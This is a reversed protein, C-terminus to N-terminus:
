EVPGGAPVVPGGASGGVSVVPRLGRAAVWGGGMIVLGGLWLALRVGPLHVTLGGVSLRRSRGLWSRSLGDLVTTGIPAVVLALFLCLRTSAYLTAFVRGRLEDGVESQLISFGLVYAAGTCVGFGVIILSSQSLESVASAAILFVGGALASWVFTRRHPLWRQVLGVGVIGLAVGVGYATLLVGFGSTGAHLVDHSFVPGLPVVTGGGALGLALCILVGRVVPSTTIFHFGERLDRFARGPDMGGEGASSARHPLALTAVISASVFFTVVDFWLALSEPALTHHVGFTKGFSGALAVLGAFVASSVPFTGYAAGLSLSNANPLFARAVMNPVSAEKASSWLLTFLELLLSAVILGPVDKVFPLTLLVLGRGIDCCVMARKRDIRDAIVGMMPGLFLGPVVRASLVLGVATGANGGGVRAAISTVAILGIWDGLSSVVQACWLRFYARSGFLRTLSDESRAGLHEAVGSAHAPDAV